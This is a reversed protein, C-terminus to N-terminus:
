STPLLQQRLVAAQQELDNLLETDKSRLARISKFDLDELQKYIAQNKIKNNHFIYQQSVETEWQSLDNASPFPTELGWYKIFDEGGRNELIVQTTFDTGPFKLNIIDFLTM